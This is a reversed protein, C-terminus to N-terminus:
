SFAGTVVLGVAVALGFLVVGAARSGRQIAGSLSWKPTLWEWLFYGLYNLLIGLVAYSLAQLLGVNHRFADGLVIGTSVLFGAVLWAVAENGNEVEKLLEFPVLWDFVLLGIFMLAFGTMAFILTWGFSEWPLNM